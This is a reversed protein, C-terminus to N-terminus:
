EQEKKNSLLVQRLSDFTHTAHWQKLYVSRPIMLVAVDAEAIVDANRVDGRIVGTVGLPMWAAVSFTAYGGLPAIKLGPGLPIYVFGAPAGAAILTQGTTLTVLHVHQFAHDRHIAATPHGSQQIRALVQQKEAGHWPVPESTLYLTREAESCRKLSPVIHLRAAAAGDLRGLEDHVQEAFSLNDDTEELLILMEAAAKLGPVTETREFSGITDAQIDQIVLATCQAAYATTSHSAFRGRHLSIRM